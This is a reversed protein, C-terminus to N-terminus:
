RKMKEINQECNKLEHTQRAELYRLERVAERRLLILALLNPFAMLANLIDALLWVTELKVVCGAFVAATFLALYAWEGRGGFLYKV